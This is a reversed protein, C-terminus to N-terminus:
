STGGAAKQQLAKIVDNKPGDAILRGADLVLLRDVLDLMSHRHTAVILTVDNGFANRLNQILQRESAMDMAGSPEDLFVLKPKALLLRAITVAQKQGSSLNSGAEGVNMDFGRPHRAIFEQIGSRRAVEVIEEDTASPKALLLNEKITGALLDSNQGALAVATRVEAPHYQRVDIGDILVRGDTPEYLAGLLRGITTKGSGIRGIIGVREGAAIRMSIGDLANHDTNPYSFSVKDFVISGSNVTRNVFGTSAPVDEPQSMIDNLIRLSLNVQRFRTLTMALQGLPTVSRGALIVSAIIAGVTITGGQFLYAGWVVICISVFQQVFQTANVAGASIEKIEESTHTSNITLERWRRTLAGEARMAKVTEAVSMVEVLLAQRQAAENAAAAIRKAIRHQAVLGIVVVAVLAIAPVLAIPGAIMWIVLIFIFVFCTDIFTAITNSSFFERVLEYQMVRNAYDGTALPRASLTTNLVKEFILQSLRLDVKRGTYDILAARATKLLLDFVLALAVGLALVWLTAIAENPLVRDYVNMVFLPSALALINIFLAALAVQTYSRWFPRLTGFFWHRKEIRTHDNDFPTTSDNLYVRSFSHFLNDAWASLEKRTVIASHASGGLGVCVFSGDDTESLLVLYQGDGTSIIGPLDANGSILRKATTTESSLGIRRGLREILEANPRELSLDDFGFFLVAASSPRSFHRAIEAFAERFGLGVCAKDTQAFVERKNM